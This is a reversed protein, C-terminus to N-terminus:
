ADAKAGESGHGYGYGYEYGYGYQAKRQEFKTLVAGMVNASVARLRGLAATVAGAKAGNAEVTFVVGEVQSAILPADALGLVPPSDVIVHDYHDLLNTLLLKFRASTLLEAANPPQPGALMADIDAAPAHIILAETHDEGSLYNSFGRENTLGLLKHISPSRMDADVLVVKKGVRALSHALAYATTSKGESARTSTIMLSTPMGHETTFRLSTQVSLYAESLASKRDQLVEMPNAGHQAPITGLMPVPLVRRADDPDKIAEDLQELALVIAGALILGILLGLAFNLPLNPSSPADPQSAPDVVLVNNVGVGGAVGVEKYRQLLADYLQRNTDTERKLIDYQINRRRLDIMGSKLSEVNAKLAQEREIADQYEKSLASNVRKEEQAITKDLEQLQSTLAQVPPYAPQFKALLNAREAALEGRRTRLETISQSALAETSASSSSLRSAARIRDATARNLEANLSALDDALLPREQAPAGPLDSNGAPLTVIREAGAYQVLARESEELRARVQGLRKELFQRAYSTAEFRRDLNSGIFEETWANAVKASLAPDPSTFSVEVLASGRIPDISINKLLIDIAKEERDRRQAATLRGPTSSEFLKGEPDVGFADFFANSNALQLQKAVREALTRAKLLSYQTEYFEVDMPQNEAELEGVNVINKEGRSVEITATATYLPTLFLTIVFALVSTALVVSLILWRRRVVVRWYQALFSPLPGGWGPAAEGAPTVPGRSLFSGVSNPEAINM